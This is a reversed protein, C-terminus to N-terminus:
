ADSGKLTNLISDVTEPSTNNNSALMTLLADVVQSMNEIYTQLQTNQARLEEVDSKPIDEFIPQPKGGMMDFNKVKKGAPVNVIMSGAPEEFNGGAMSILINGSYGFTFLENM